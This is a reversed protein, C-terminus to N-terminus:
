CHIYKELVAKVAYKGEIMEKFMGEIKDGLGIEYLNSGFIRENSLIPKLMYGEPQISGLEIGKVYERLEELMPDPSLEMINGCDDVGMLYRCWAAITLPIYTLGRVDLRPNSCYTKITEGFRVPIKQSTDCAIRQPTDPIYPNPLREEIVEKIFAAPQLIGPNVVVPMGEDYGIREVLRKLYPNKMEDAILKYGLLNGFVALATHLPNLCTTVKMREVREVTERDTFIVGAEELKMRGNPFHDEIVLYQPKEANVFQSIFTNKSTRVIKIDEIGLKSVANCVAESPRPTIKDIMTCPFSVKSPNSLYAMFKKDAFGKEIWGKAISLMSKQLIEGNHSCNDMSVMAIPLGGCFFRELLLSCVKAILNKPEKPGNEIDNKVDPLCDGSMGTLSYGKETVTFSAMQLSPKCFVEKLREWDQERSTDGALGESISAIVKNYLSGDANMHVLLSLNDFPKYIRDIIEFDYAEVAIIGTDAEGSDLLKQQLAAIFGRFINGAGFHVWTPNERTAAVMKEFDFKPMEIGTHQWLELNGIDNRNLRM